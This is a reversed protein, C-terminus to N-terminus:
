VNNINSFVGVLEKMIVRRRGDEEDDKEIGEEDARTAVEAISDGLLSVSGSCFRYGDPASIEYGEIGGCEHYLTIIKLGKSIHKM